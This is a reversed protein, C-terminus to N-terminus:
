EMQRAFKLLEADVERASTLNGSELHRTRQMELEAWSVLRAHMGDEFQGDQPKWEGLFSSWRKVAVDLTQASVAHIFCGQMTDADPSQKLSAPYLQSWVSRYAVTQASGDDVTQCAIVFLAAWVLMLGSMASHM